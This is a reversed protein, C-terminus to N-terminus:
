PAAREPRTGVTLSPTPPWGLRRRRAKDGTFLSPTGRRSRSPPRRGLDTARDRGLAGHGKRQAEPDQTGVRLRM